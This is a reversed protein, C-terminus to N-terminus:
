FGREWVGYEHYQLGVWEPPDRTTIFNKLYLKVTSTENTHVYDTLGWAGNERRLVYSVSQNNLRPTEM